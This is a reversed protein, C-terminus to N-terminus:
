DYVYAITTWLACSSGDIHAGDAPLVSAGDSARQRHIDNPRGPTSVAAHHRRCRLVSGRNDDQGEACASVHLRESTRETKFHHWGDVRNKM